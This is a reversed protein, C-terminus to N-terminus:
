ERGMRDHVVKQPIKSIMFNWSVSLTSPALRGNVGEEM